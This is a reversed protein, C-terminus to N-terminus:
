KAPCVNAEHGKVRCVYCLRKRLLIEKSNRRKELQLSNKPQFQMVPQAQLTRQSNGAIQIQLNKMAKEVDRSQKLMDSYNKNSARLLNKLEEIERKSGTIQAISTTTINKIEEKSKGSWANTELKQALQEVVSKLESIENKTERWEQGNANVSISNVFEVNRKKLKAENLVGACKETAKVLDNLNKYEKFSMRERLKPKLGGLFGDMLSSERLQLFDPDLQKGVVIPYAFSFLKQIRGAYDRISEGPNRVCNIFETFYMKRSEGNNDEKSESDEDQESNEKDEQQRKEKQSKNFQKSSLTNLISKRLGSFFGPKGSKEKVNQPTVGAM